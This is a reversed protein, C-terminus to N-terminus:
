QHVFFITSEWANLFVLRGLRGIAFITIEFSSSSSHEVTSSSTCNSNGGGSTRNSVSGAYLIRIQIPGVLSYEIWGRTKYVGPWPTTQCIIIIQFGLPFTPMLNGSDAPTIVAVLSTM